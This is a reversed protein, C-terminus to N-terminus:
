EDVKRKLISINLDITKLGERLLDLCHQKNVEKTWSAKGNQLDRIVKKTINKRERWFEITNLEPNQALFTDKTIAKILNEM